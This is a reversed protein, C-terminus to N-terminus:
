DAAFQGGSTIDVLYVTYTLVVEELLIAPKSGNPTAWTYLEIV